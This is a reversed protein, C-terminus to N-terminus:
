RCLLLLLWLTVERVDTLAPVPPWSSLAAPEASWAHETGSLFLSPCIVAERQTETEVKVSYPVRVSHM